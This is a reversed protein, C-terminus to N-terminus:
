TNVKKQVEKEIKERLSAQEYSYGAHIKKLRENREQIKKGVSGGDLNGNIKVHISKPFLRRMVSNCGPNPCKIIGENEISTIYIDPVFSNCEDCKYDYIPM